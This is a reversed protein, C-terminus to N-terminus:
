NILTLMQEVVETSLSDVDLYELKQKLETQPDIIVSSLVDFLFDLEENSLSDLNVRSWQKQVELVKYRKEGQNALDVTNSVAVSISATASNNRSNPLISFPPITGSYSRSYEKVLCTFTRGQCNNNVWSIYKKDKLQKLIFQLSGRNISPHYNCIESSTLNTLGKNNAYLLVNFTLEELQTLM